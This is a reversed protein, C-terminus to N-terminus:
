SQKEEKPTTSLDDDLDRKGYLVRAITVTKKTEDVTYFMLYHRVVCKRYETKLPRLPVYVAYMYPFQAIRQAADTFAEALSFAASRNQLHGAIYQVIQTMDRLASPLFEVKYM